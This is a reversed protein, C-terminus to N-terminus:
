CLRTNGQTTSKGAATDAKAKANGARNALDNVDVSVNSKSLYWFLDQIQNEGNKNNLLDIFQQLWRKTYKVLQKGSDSLSPDHPNLVDSALLTRLNVIAQETTPMYGDGLARIMQYSHLKQHLERQLVTDDRYQPLLPERDADKSKRWGFCSSM